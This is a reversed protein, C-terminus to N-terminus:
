QFHQAADTDFGAHARDYQPDGILNFSSGFASQKGQLDVAVFFHLKDEIIPGGLTAGYQGVTYGTFTPDDRYGALRKSQFYVFVSGHFENTGSKTIANVLGGTFNGQRVDFPAVQVVFEQIAEISLPKANSNGGPTGQTTLGFLDNNAGGDIQIYNYRNNQGAISVAGGENTVVPNASILDTFNRGQLPLETIKAEKTSSSAGTRSQDDLVTRRRGVVVVEEGLPKLALDVPLRQGLTLQVDTERAPVYGPASATVVFPGGPPLNDLSYEGAANTTATFTDGTSANRVQVQAGDIPGGGEQTVTGVLAAGTVGQALAEHEAAAVVVVVALTATIWRLRRLMFGGVRQSSGVALFLRPIDFLRQRLGLPNKQPRIEFGFNVSRILGCVQQLLWGEPLHARLEYATGISPCSRGRCGRDIIRRMQTKQPELLPLRGTYRSAARAKPSSNAWCFIPKTNPPPRTPRIPASASATRSRPPSAIPTM